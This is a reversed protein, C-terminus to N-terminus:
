HLITYATLAGVFIMGFNLAWPMYTKTAVAVCEVFVHGIIGGAIMWLIMFTSM